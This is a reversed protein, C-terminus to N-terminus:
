FIYEHVDIHIWDMLCLYAFNERTYLLPAYQQIHTTNKALVSLRMGLCPSGNQTQKQDM